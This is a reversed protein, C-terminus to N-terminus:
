NIIRHLIHELAYLYSRKYSMDPCVPQDYIYNQFKENTGLYYVKFQHANYEKDYTISIFWGPDYERIFNYAQEYTPMYIVNRGAAEVIACQELGLDMLEYNGTSSNLIYQNPTYIMWGVKQLLEAVTLDVYYNYKFM